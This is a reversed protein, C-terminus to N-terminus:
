EGLDALLVQQLGQGGYENSAPFEPLKGLRSPERYARTTTDKHQCLQLAHIREVLVQALIGTPAITPISLTYQPSIVVPLLDYREM